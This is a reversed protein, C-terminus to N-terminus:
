IQKPSCWLSSDMEGCGLLCKRCWFYFVVILVICIFWLNRRFLVSPSFFFYSCYAALTSMKGEFLFHFISTFCIFLKVHSLCLHRRTSYAQLIFNSNQTHFKAWLFSVIVFYAARTKTHQTLSIHPPLAFLFIYISIYVSSIHAIFTHSPDDPAHAISWDCVM